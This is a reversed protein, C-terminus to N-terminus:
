GALPLEYCAAEHNNRVLLLNGALAPSNWSKGELVNFRHLEVLRDPQPEILVIDGYETQVILLDDALIMQGHGYRGQKWCREGTEPDLCVMTGDDLGYVYGEHEVFNAFKAKLRPSEWILEASLKGPGEASPTGSKGGFSKSATSVLRLMKSGVGYGSSVLLRDASLPLPQAVNPQGSPWAFTWLVEGTDVRHSSVAPQNFIVIQREGALSAVFPSSYWSKFDGASWVRDGGERDYAVLSRGASGGVSVVVLDDIVLPSSSKGWEPVKAGNEDIAQRSWLREGTSLDLANLLGTAGIAYVRNGSITPTARPGVGGITTEYREPDRHV